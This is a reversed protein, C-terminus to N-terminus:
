AWPSASCRATAARSSCSTSARGGRRPDGRGGPAQGAGPRGQARLEECRLLEAPQHGAAFGQLPGTRFPDGEKLLMSRRLVKDKTTLNGEFEIRRVTYPEGEDLKLTTDVKKVGDEERIEFKKEARFMIYAQNSYAEKIKDVTQNVADLDFPVPKAGPKPAEMSPRINFFKKLFSHNDRKVEAYKM